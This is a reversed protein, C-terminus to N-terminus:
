RYAFKRVDLKILNIRDIEFQYCLVKYMILVFLPSSSVTPIVPESDEVLQEAEEKNDSVVVDELSTELVDELQQVKSSESPGVAL